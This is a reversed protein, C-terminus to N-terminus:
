LDRLDRSATPRVAKNSWPPLLLRLKDPYFTISTVGGRGVKLNIGCLDQTLDIELPTRAFRSLVTITCATCATYAALLLQECFTDSVLLEGLAGLKERRLKLWNAGSKYLTFSLQCVERADTALITVPTQATLAWQPMVPTNLSPPRAKKKEASCWAPLLLRLEQPDVVVSLVGGKGITMTIGHLQDSAAMPNRSGTGASLIAVTGARASLIAALFLNECFRDTCTYLQTASLAENRKARWLAASVVLTSALSNTELVDTALVTVPEKATLVWELTLPDELSPEQPSLGSPLPIQVGPGPFGLPTLFLLACLFFTAATRM